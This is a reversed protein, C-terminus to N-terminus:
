GEFVIRGFRKPVHFAAPVRRTPSWSQFEDGEPHRDIRFLNGRWVEGPKPTERFMDAFPIAMEVFYGRSHISLDNLVGDVLVATRLNYSHWETSIQPNIDMDPNFIRPDYVVNAPSVEYEFYNVLDCSPNLFVEVAEEACVTDDHETMTALIYRDQVEFAVYLCEDDWCMGARTSQRASSGDESNVLELLPAIQWAPDDILGAIVPPTTVKPCHYIYDSETTV